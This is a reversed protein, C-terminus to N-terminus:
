NGFYNDDTNEEEEEEFISSGWFKKNEAHDGDNGKGGNSLVLLPTSNVKIEEIAPSIYTKKM